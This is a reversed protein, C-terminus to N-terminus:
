RNTSFLGHSRSLVPKDIVSVVERMELVATFIFSTSQIGM